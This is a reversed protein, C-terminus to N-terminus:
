CSLEKHIQFYLKSIAQQAAFEQNHVEDRAKLFHESSYTAFM